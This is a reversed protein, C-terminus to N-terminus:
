TAGAQVDRKSNCASRSWCRRPGSTARRRLNSLFRLFRTAQLGPAVAGRLAPERVRQAQPLHQHDPLQAVAGAPQDRVAALRRHAPRQAAGRRQPRRSGGALDPQVLTSKGAGNPGICRSASARRWQWRRRRPHDRDQRLEQAADKLELAHTTGRRGHGGQDRGRDGGPDAGWARVLPAARLELAVYGSSRWCRRRSSGAPWAPRTSRWASCGCRRRRLAADLQM